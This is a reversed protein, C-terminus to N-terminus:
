IWSRITRERQIWKFDRSISFRFEKEYTITSTYSLPSSLIDRSNWLTPAYVVSM